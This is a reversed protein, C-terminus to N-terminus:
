RDQAEDVAVELNSRYFRRRAVEYRCYIYQALIDGWDEREACDDCQTIGASAIKEFLALMLANGGHKKKLEELTWEPMQVIVCLKDQTCFFCNRMTPVNPQTTM